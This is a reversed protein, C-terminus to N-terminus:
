MQPLRTGGQHAVTFSVDLYNVICAEARLTRRHRRIVSMYFTGFAATLKIRTSESLESSLFAVDAQSRGILVRGGTTDFM